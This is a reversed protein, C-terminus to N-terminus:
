QDIEQTQESKGFLNYSILLELFDKPNKVEQLFDSDTFEDLVVVIDNVIDINDHNLLGLLLDIGKNEVLTTM